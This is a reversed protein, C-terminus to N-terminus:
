LAQSFNRQYTNRGGHKDVFFHLPEDGKGLLSTLLDIGTRLETTLEAVADNLVDPTNTVRINRQRAADLEIGDVGVGFNAVIELAPGISNNAITTGGGTTARDPWLLLAGILVAAAAATLWSTIRLIGQDRAARLNRSLRAMAAPSMVALPAAAFLNSLGRLDSLMARCDACADIHAEIAARDSAALADDHYAHVQAFRDCSM